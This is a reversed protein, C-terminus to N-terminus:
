RMARILEKQEPGTLEWQHKGNKNFYVIAAAHASRAGAVLDAIQDLSNSDSAAVGTEAVIFPLHKPNLTRIAAVSKAFTNAWTSGPIFYGDLGFVDVHADPYGNGPWYQRFSAAESAVNPAWVWRVNHAITSILATVYQWAAIWERASVKGFGWSYWGGNM